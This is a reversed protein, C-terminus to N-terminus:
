SIVNFFFQGLDILQDIEVSRLQTKDLTTLFKDSKLYYLNYDDVFAGKRTEHLEIKCIRPM